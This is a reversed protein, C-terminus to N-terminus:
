LADKSLLNAIFVVIIAMLAGIIFQSKPYLYYLFVICIVYIARKLLRFTGKGCNSGRNEREIDNAIERLKHRNIVALVSMLLRIPCILQM